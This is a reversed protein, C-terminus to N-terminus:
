DKFLWMVLSKGDKSLHWGEAKLETLDEVTVNVNKILDECAITYYLSNGDTAGRVAEINEDMILRPTIGLKQMVFFVSKIPKKQLTVEGDFLETIESKSIM